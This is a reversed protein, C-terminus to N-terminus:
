PHCSPFESSHHLSQLTESSPNAKCSGKGASSPLTSALTSASTSPADGALTKDGGQHKFFLVAEFNMYAWAHWAKYRRACWRVENKSVFIPRNM